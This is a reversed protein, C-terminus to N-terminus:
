DTCHETTRETVCEGPPVDSSVLSSPQFLVEACCVVIALKGQLMYSWLQWENGTKLMAIYETQGQTRAM